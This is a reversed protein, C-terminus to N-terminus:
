PSSGIGRSQVQVGMVGLGAIGPTGMFVLIGLIGMRLREGSSTEHRTLTDRMAPGWQGIVRKFTKKCFIDNEAQSGYRSVNYYNKPVVARFINFDFIIM